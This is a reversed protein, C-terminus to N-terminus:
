EMGLTASMDLADYFKKIGPCCLNLWTLCQLFIMADKNSKQVCFQVQRIFM